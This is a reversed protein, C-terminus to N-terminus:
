KTGQAAKALAANLDIKQFAQRVEPDNIFNLMAPMRRLTSLDGARIKELSEEDRADAALKKKVVSLFEAIEPDEKLRELAKPDRSIIKNLGRAGAAVRSEKVPNYKEVIDGMLSQQLMSYIDPKKNQFYSPFAAVLCLVIWAIAFAKAGGFAGGLFRNTVKIPGDAKGVFSNVIRFIVRAGLYIVMGALFCGIVYAASPPTQSHGAIFDGVVKGVPRSLFWAAVLATVGFLQALFGTILGVLGFLLVGGLVILDILALGM